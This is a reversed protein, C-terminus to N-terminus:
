YVTKLLKYNILKLNNKFVDLSKTAKINPDLRNWYRTAREFFSGHWTKNKSCFKPTITQRRLNHSNNQFSFFSNFDLDSLNNAIKFLNILDYRIRRDELSILNLKLLRDEYCSFPINCRRCISKTYRHQVKEIKDIDQQLSPSWVSTNYELKPRM